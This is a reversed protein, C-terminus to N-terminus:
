IQRVIFQLQLGSKKWKIKQTEEFFCNNTFFLNLILWGLSKIQIQLEFDLRLILVFIQIVLPSSEHFRARGASLM